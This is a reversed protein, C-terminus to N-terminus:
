QSELMLIDYGKKVQDDPSIGLSILFELMQKQIHGADKEEAIKELEIFAGLGEVEDLCIEYGDCHTTQRKKV